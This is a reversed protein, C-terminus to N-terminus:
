IQGTLIDCWELGSLQEMLAAQAKPSPATDGWPPLLKVVQRQWGGGGDTNPRLKKKALEKLATDDGNNADRVLDGLSSGPPPPRWAEWVGRAPPKGPALGMM